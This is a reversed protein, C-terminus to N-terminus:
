LSSRDLWFREKYRIQNSFFTKSYKQHRINTNIHSTNMMGDMKDGAQLDRRKDLRKYGGGDGGWVRFGPDSFNSYSLDNRLHAEM